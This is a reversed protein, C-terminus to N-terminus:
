SGFRVRFFASGRRCVPAAAKMGVFSVTTGAGSTGAVILDTDGETSAMAEHPNSVIDLIHSAWWPRNPDDLENANPSGLTKRRKAPGPAQKQSVSGLATM